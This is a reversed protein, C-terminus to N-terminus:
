AVEEVYNVGDECSIRAMKHLPDGGELAALITQDGSRARALIRGKPTTGVIYGRAAQGKQYTVSFSEVTATCTETLLTPLPQGDIQAQIAASSQPQWDPKPVASYVGVAEKSLFGGNALVLGFQDPDARLMETMTAIAHLSYSNGPGGFFPLGGTVTSVTTRWDLGLAETALLVACPFCSYLDFLAIEGAAKGAGELAAALTLEIPVSRSLDPRECVTKDKAGAYGHLFVWKSPDIRLRQAEGVSTMIVAAGQNVADQAVHWKLYPDAVPYNESGPTSLFAKSRAEPFQSHPNQSAVRSFGEWLASMMDLHAERSLGLRGRLAHEFVPYTQTPAGLGNKIDYGSLLMPGLGRDEFEGGASGSWDLAIGKKLAVKMAGTAESGAILIAKANGAFIDEAAENVLAQPQDGGVFSYIHRANAIGASEALTGPPNECRGFPQPAGPMSDLMSRIVIVTDIAAALGAPDGSDALALRAADSHLSQPSPAKATAAGDWHITRQGVGVLIPTQPDIREGTM